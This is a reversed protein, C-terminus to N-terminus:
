ARNVTAGIKAWHKNLSNLLEKNSALKAAPQALIIIDNGAFANNQTRFSERALRRIRNRNVALSIKKKAIAFGIRARPL